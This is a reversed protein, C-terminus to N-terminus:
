NIFIADDNIMYNFDPIMENLVWLAKDISENPLFAVTFRRGLYKKSDYHIVKNFHREMSKMIRDFPASQFVLYGEKFLSTKITNIELINETKDSISYEIRTDPIMKKSQFFGDKSAVELDGDILTIICDLNNPYATVLFSSNDGIARLQDTNVIFPAHKDKKITFYAEGCLYVKRSKKDFSEPYLLISGLNIYALSGDPLTIEKVENNSSFCYVLKPSQKNYFYIWAYTSFVGLLFLSSFLIINKKYNKM